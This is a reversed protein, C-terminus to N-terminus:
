GAGENEAAPWVHERLQRARANRRRLEDPHQRLPEMGADFRALEGRRMPWFQVLPEGRRFVVPRGVVLLQYHISFPHPHHDAEVLGSWTTAEPRLWNVPQTVFLDWGPPTRFLLHTDFTVLGCGVRSVPAAAEGYAPDRELIEIAVDEPEQGGNWVCGVTHPSLFWWGLSAALRLPLCHKALVDAAVWDRYPSAPSLPLCDASPRLPAAPDSPYYATLTPREDQRRQNARAERGM